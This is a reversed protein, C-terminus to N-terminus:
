YSDCSIPEIEFHDVEGNLGPFNTFMATVLCNNVTIINTFYGSNNVTGEFVPKQTQKDKINIRLRSNYEKQNQRISKALTKKIDFDDFMSDQALKYTKVTDNYSFTIIYEADDLSRAEQYGYSIMFEKITNTLSSAELSNKQKENFQIVFKKGYDFKYSDHYRVVNSSVKSNMCGSLSLTLIFLTFLRTM